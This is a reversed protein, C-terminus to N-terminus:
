AKKRFPMGFRKLLALADEDNNASTQISINMGYVPDNGGADAEPFITWEKIGLNYNGRRDLKPSIGQFDRVKPLAVNVLKDFFAYMANGRLTVMVGLPIGERIKFGSISKRAITKVPKQGAIRGLVKEIKELIRSDAVAEKSGVNLVIKSLEPVEMINKKGLENKLDPRIKKVFEQKILSSSM